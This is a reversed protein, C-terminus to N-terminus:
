NIMKCLYKVLGCYDSNGRYVFGVVDCDPNFTRVNAYVEDVLEHYPFDFRYASFLQQLISKEFLVNFEENFEM